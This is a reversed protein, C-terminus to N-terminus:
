KQNSQLLEKMNEADAIILSINNRNISNNPLTLEETLNQQQIEYSEINDLNMFTERNREIKVDM